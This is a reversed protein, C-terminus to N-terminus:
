TPYGETSSYKCVGAKPFLAAVIPHKAIAFARKFYFLELFQSKITAHSALLGETEHSFNSGLTEFKGKIYAM